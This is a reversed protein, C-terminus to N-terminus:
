DAEIESLIAVRGSVREQIYIKGSEAIAISTPKSLPFVVKPTKVPGEQHAPYFSTVKSGGLNNLKIKYLGSTEDVIYLGNGHALVDKINPSSTKKSKPEQARMFHPPTLDTRSDEVAFFDPDEQLDGIKSLDYDYLRAGLAVLNQHEELVALLHPQELDGNPFFLELNRPYSILNEEGDAFFGLFKPITFVNDRNEKDVSKWQYVSIRGDKPVTFFPISECVIEAVYLYDGNVVMDVFIITPKSYESPVEASLELPQQPGKDSFIQLGHNHSATFVRDDIWRVSGGIPGHNYTNNILNRDLFDSYSCTYRDPPGNYDFVQFYMGGKTESRDNRPISLVAVRGNKAAGYVTYVSPPFVGGLPCDCDSCSNCDSDASELWEVIPMENEPENEDFLWLGAGGKASFIKSGDAWVMFANGGTPFHYDRAPPPRPLELSKNERNWRWLQLGGWGDAAYVWDSATEAHRCLVDSVEHLTSASAVMNPLATLNDTWEFLWVNASEPFGSACYRFAGETAFALSNDDIYLARGKAAISPKLDHDLANMIPEEVIAGDELHFRSLVTSNEISYVAAYLHNGRVAMDLPIVTRGSKLIQTKKSAAEIDKLSVYSIEGFEKLESALPSVINVKYGVYLGANDMTLALSTANRFTSQMGTQVNQSRVSYFLSLKVAESTPNPPTFTYVKAATFKGMSNPRAECAVAVLEANADFDNVSCDELYIPSGSIPMPEAPDESLDFVHIGDGPSVVFLFDGDVDMHAVEDRFESIDRLSAPSTDSALPESDPGTRLIKHVQLVHGAAVYVYEADHKGEQRSYRVVANAPGQGSYGERRFNLPREDAVDSDCNSDPRGPGCREYICKSDCGDDSATNGDDCDEGAGICQDGCVPLDFDPCTDTAIPLTDSDSEDLKPYPPQLGWCGMIGIPILSSLLEINRLQYRKM